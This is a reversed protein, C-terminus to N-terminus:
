PPPQRAAERLAAPLDVPHWQGDSRSSVILIELYLGAENRTFTKLLPVNM